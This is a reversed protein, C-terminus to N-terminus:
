RVTERSRFAYVVIGVAVINVVALIMAMANATGLDYDEFGVRYIRLTLM